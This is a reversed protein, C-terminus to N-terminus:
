VDHKSFVRERNKPVYGVGRHDQDAPFHLRGVGTVGASELSAGGLAAKIEDSGYTAHLELDCPFPLTLPQAALGRSMMQGLWSRKSTVSCPRIRQLDVLRNKSARSALRADPNEGCATIFSRALIGLM